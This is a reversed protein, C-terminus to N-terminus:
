DASRSRCRRGRRAPARSPSSRPLIPDPRHLRCSRSGGCRPRARGPRWLRPRRDDGDHTVDVVALGLQEVRDAGGVHGLALGAADGLVDAGVLDIGLAALDGEEISRTVLGEGGHTGAPRLRGVDRHQDDGGVVAHHRGGALRDRVDLRRVHRHDDGDVLDIQRARVGIPDLLLEGLDLDHRLLPAAVDGEDLNRRALLETQVVQELDNLEDGVHMLQLRIRVLRRGADDDLGLDVAGATRHRRQQHLAAREVRAVHDHRADVQPRTFAINSSRPRRMRRASGLM